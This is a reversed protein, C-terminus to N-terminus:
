CRFWELSWPFPHFEFKFRVTQWNTSQINEFHDTHTTDDMKLKGKYIVLPDQIFLHAFHRALPADMGAKLLREKVYDNTRM